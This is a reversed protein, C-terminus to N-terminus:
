CDTCVWLYPRIIEPIASLASSNLSFYPVSCAYSVPTHQKLGSSYVANRWLAKDHLIEGVVWQRDPWKQASLRRTRYVLCDHASFYHNPLYQADLSNSTTHTPPCYEAPYNREMMAVSHSVGMQRNSSTSCQPRHELWMCLAPPTHPTKCALHADWSIFVNSPSFYLLYIAEM